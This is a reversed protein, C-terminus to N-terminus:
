WRPMWGFKWASPMPNSGVHGRAPDCPKAFRGPSGYGAVKWHTAPGPISGPAGAKHSGTPCRGGRCRVLSWPSIRVGVAALPSSARFTAHRGTGGRPRIETARAPISGQRELKLLQRGVSLRVLRINETRRAPTSGAYGRPSAAKCATPSASAWGVCTRASHCPRSDFGGDGLNSSPRKASHRQRQVVPGHQNLPTVPLRVRIELM